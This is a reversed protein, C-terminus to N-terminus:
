WFLKASGLYISRMGDFLPGILCQLHTFSWEVTQIMLRFLRWVTRTKWSDPDGVLCTKWSDPNGVLVTKWSDPECVLRRNWSEPDGVLRGVVTRIASWFLRWVRRRMLWDEL